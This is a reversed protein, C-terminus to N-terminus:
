EDAVAMPKGSRIACEEDIPVADGATVLHWCDPHDIEKGIRNIVYAPILYPQGALQARHADDGNFEPNPGTTQKILRCKM